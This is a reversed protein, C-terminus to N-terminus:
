INKEMLGGTSGQVAHPACPTHRLWKVRRENTDGLKQLPLHKVPWPSRMPDCHSQGFEAPTNHYKQNKMNALAWSFSSTFGHLIKFFTDGCWTKRSTATTPNWRWHGTSPNRLDNPSFGFFSLMVNVMCAMTRPCAFCCAWSFFAAFCTASRGDGNWPGDMTAEHSLVINTSRGMPVPSCSSPRSAIPHSFGWIATIAASTLPISHMGQKKINQLCFGPFHVFFLHLVQSSIDGVM